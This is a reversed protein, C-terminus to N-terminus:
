VRCGYMFGLSFGGAAPLRKTLVGKITKWWAKVDETDLKGDGTKDLKSAASDAIKKWNVDIYGFHSATQLGIFTIGVLTAVAKGLRVLAVGSCFGMVGGFGLNAAMPQVQSIIDEVSDVKKEESM